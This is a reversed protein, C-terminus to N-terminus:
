CIKKHKTRKEDLIQMPDDSESRQTKKSPTKSFLSGYSTDSTNRGFRVGFITEDSDASASKKSTKPTKMTMSDHAGSEDVFTFKFAEFANEGIGILDNHKLETTKGSGLKKRQIFTGLSSKDTIQM